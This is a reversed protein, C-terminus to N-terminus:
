GRHFEQLVLKLLVELEQDPHHRLIAAVTTEVESSRYGLTELAAVLESGINGSAGSGCGGGRLDAIELEGM